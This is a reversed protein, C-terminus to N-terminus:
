GLTTEMAYEGGDWEVHIELTTGHSRRWVRMDTRSGLLHVSYPTVVIELPDYLDPHRLTWAEKWVWPPLIFSASSTYADWGLSDSGRLMFEHLFGCGIGATLDGRGLESVSAEAKSGYSRRVEMTCVDQGDFVIWEAQDQVEYLLLAGIEPPDGFMEAVGPKLETLELDDLIADLEDRAHSEAVLLGSM